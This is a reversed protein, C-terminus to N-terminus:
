QEISECYDQISRFDISYNTKAFRQAGLSQYVSCSFILGGKSNPNEVETGYRLVCKNEKLGIIEISVSGFSLYIRDTYQSCKQFDLEIYTKSTVLTSTM